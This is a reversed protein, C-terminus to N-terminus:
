AAVLVPRQPGLDLLAVGAAGRDDELDLELAGALDPRRHGLRDLDEDSRGVGGVEAAPELAAAGVVGLRDFGAEGDGLLLEGGTALERVRDDVAVDDAGGGP